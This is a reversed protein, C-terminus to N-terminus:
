IKAIKLVVSAVFLMTIICGLLFFLIGTKRIYDSIFNYFKIKRKSKIAISEYGAVSQHGKQIWAPLEEESLGNVTREGVEITHLIQKKDEVHLRVWKEHMQRSLHKASFVRIYLSLFLTIFLFGWAIFIWYFLPVGFSKDFLVMGSKSLIYGLFTISLSIIGASYFAIKEFFTSTAETLKDLSDSYSIGAEQLSQPEIPM